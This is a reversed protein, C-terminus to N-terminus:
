AGGKRTFTSAAFYTLSFRDVQAFAALQLSSNPISKRCDGVGRGKKKGHEASMFEVLWSKGSRILIARQTEALSFTRV